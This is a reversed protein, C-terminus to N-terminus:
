GLVVLSPDGGWLSRILNNGAASGADLVLLRASM